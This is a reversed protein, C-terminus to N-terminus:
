SQGLKRATDAKIQATEANMERTAAELSGLTRKLMEEVRADGTKLYVTALRRVSPLLSPHDPPVLREFMTLLRQSLEEARALDGSQLRAEAAKDLMVQLRLSDPGFVREGAALAQEFLEAAKSFAKRKMAVDGLLAPAIGQWESDPPHNKKYIDGIRRYAGEAAGLKGLELNADAQLQLVPILEDHTRGKAKEDIALAQGLCFLAQKPSKQAMALKGALFMLHALSPHDKGRSGAALSLADKLFKSAEDLENAALFLTGVRTLDTITQDLVPRKAHITFAGFMHHLAGDLDDRQEAIHSLVVLAQATHDHEPGDHKQAMAHARTALAEAGEIDDKALRMRALNLLMPSFSVAEDTDGVIDLARGFLAEAEDRTAEAAVLKTGLNNLSMAVHPHSPGLLEEDIALSRRALEIGRALDGTLEHHTGLADLV